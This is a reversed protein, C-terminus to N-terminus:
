EVKVNTVKLAVPFPYGIKDTLEKMENATAGNAIMMNGQSIEGYIIAALILEKNAVIAMMEGTHAKTYAALKVRGSENLILSAVPRNTTPDYKLVANVIEESNIIPKENDLLYLEYLDDWRKMMYWHLNKPLSIQQIIKRVELTDKNKMSGLYTFHTIEEPPFTLWKEAGKAKLEAIMGLADPYGSLFRINTRLNLRAKVSDVNVKGYLHLLIEGNGPVLDEPAIKHSYVGNLRSTITEIMFTKFSTDAQFAPDEPQLTFVTHMIRKAAKEEGKEVARKTKRAQPQAQSFLASSILLIFLFTTKKQM